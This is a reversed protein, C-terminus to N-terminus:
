TSEKGAAWLQQMFRHNERQMAEDHALAERAVLLMAARIGGPMRGAKRNRTWHEGLAALDDLVAALPDVEAETKISM